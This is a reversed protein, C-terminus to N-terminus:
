RRRARISLWFAESERGEKTETRCLSAGEISSVGDDYAGLRMM